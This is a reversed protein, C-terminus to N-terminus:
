YGGKEATKARTIIDVSASTGLRSAGAEIMAVADEYSRIGGSAKVGFDKGVVERLLQVDAVTAGGSAFGTSTKVFAAGSVKVLTTAMVKEAPTLESTEIIVKLPVKLNQVLLSIEKEISHLERAKLWGRNLVMDIEQAGLDQAQKAEYLKHETTEQGTPFGVVTIPIVNSGQLRNQCLPVWKSEVCVTKFGHEIAEECLQIIQSETAEKKLLTHDIMAAIEISKFM